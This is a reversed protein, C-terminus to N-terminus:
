SKNILFMRLIPLKSLFILFFFSIYYTLYSTMHILFIKLFPNIKVM